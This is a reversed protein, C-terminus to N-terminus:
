ENSGKQEATKVAKLKNKSYKRHFMQNSIGLAHAISRKSAGHEQAVKVLRLEKELFFSRLDQLIQNFKQQNTPLTDCPKIM